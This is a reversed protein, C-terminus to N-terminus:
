AARDKERFAEAALNEQRLVEDVERPNALFYAIAAHVQSLNVSNVLALIEEPSYGLGYYGAIRHM